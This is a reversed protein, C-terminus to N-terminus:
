EFYFRYRDKSSREDTLTMQIGKTLYAQQRLRSLVTKYDFELVTFM